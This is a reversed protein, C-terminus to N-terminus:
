KNFWKSLISQAKKGNNILRVFEGEFHDIAKIMKYLDEREEVNDFKSTRFNDFVTARMKALTDVVLTDNLIRKAHDARQIEAELQYKEKTKDNSSM